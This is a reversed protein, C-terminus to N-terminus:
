EGMVRMLAVELPLEAIPAHRTQSYAELLIALTASTITTPKAGLITDIFSLDSASYMGEFTNRMNPAVRVLLTLRFLHLVLKLFVRADINQEGAKKVASLGAEINKEAIARIYDHVLTQAPAGTVRAVEELSIKKDTSSSLVKQLIGQTDRFSGDGLLAILNAAGDELMFGEKKAVTRALEALTDENPKKFTFTQCRSLITEPVKDLETTALIFIVHAPPEELTKLLANFADKTFMHVEDLIYVKYKSDFPLSRVNDRLQRVDDIGRNSAADIEFLDNESTGLERAFIRAISTKGTGRSGAFLYAHAITGEKLAAKLVEVVHDQGIIDAFREPRYKRYLTTHEM